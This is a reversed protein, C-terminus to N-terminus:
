SASFVFVSETEIQFRTKNYGFFRAMPFCTFGSIDRGWSNRWNGIDKERKSEGVAAIPNTTWSEIDDRFELAAGCM